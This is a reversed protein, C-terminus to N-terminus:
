NRCAQGQAAKHRRLKTGPCRQGDCCARPHRTWSSFSFLPAVSLCRLSLTYGPRLSLTGHRPAPPSESVLRSRQAHTSGPAPRLHRPLFRPGARLRSRHPPAKLGAEDQEEGGRAARLGTEPNVSPADISISLRLRLEACLGPHTRPGPDGRWAGELDTTKEQGQSRREPGGVGLWTWRPRGHEDGWWVSLLAPFVPGRLRAGGWGCDCVAVCANASVSASTVALAPSACAM